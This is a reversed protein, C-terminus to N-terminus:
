EMLFDYIYMHQTHKSLSMLQSLTLTAKSPTGQQSQLPWRLEALERGKSQLEAQFQQEKERVLQQVCQELEVERQRAELSAKTQPLIDTQQQSERKSEEYGPAAKLETM